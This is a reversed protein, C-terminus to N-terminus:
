AYQEKVTSVFSEPSLVGHESVIADIFEKEVEDFAPNYITINPDQTDWVEHASREEIKENVGFITETDFKLSSTMCFTKVNYRTAIESFMKTGVKNFVNGYSNIADAGFFFIDAKKLVHYAASDVMHHVKIGNQAIEQATIRGQFKPRTETNYVEFKKGQLKAEIITNVVYSSHCHTFVIMGNEILNSGYEQIKKSSAEIMTMIEHYVAENNSLDHNIKKMFLRLVNRLAPETPRTEKLMEVAPELSEVKFGSTKLEESREWLAELGRKAINMASQIKLNKIDEVIQDFM